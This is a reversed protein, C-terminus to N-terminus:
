RELWVLSNSAYIIYAILRCAVLHLLVEDVAYEVHLFVAYEVIRLALEHTLACLLDSRQLDPEGTSRRRSYIPVFHRYYICSFLLRSIVARTTIVIQGMRVMRLKIYEKENQKARWVRCQQM